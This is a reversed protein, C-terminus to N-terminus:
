GSPKPTRLAFRGGVRADRGARHFRHEALTETTYEKYVMSAAFKTKVNPAGISWAQEGQGIETLVGLRDREIVQATM